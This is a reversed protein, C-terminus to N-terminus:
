YVLTSKKVFLIWVCQALKLGGCALIRLTESVALPGAQERAMYVEKVYSNNKPQVICLEGILFAVRISTLALLVVVKTFGVCCSSYRRLIKKLPGVEIRISNCVKEEECRSTADAHEQSVKYGWAM